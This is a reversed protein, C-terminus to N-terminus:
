FTLAGELELDMRQWARENERAREAATTCRKRPINSSTTTERVCQVAENAPRMILGNVANRSTEGQEFWADPVPEELQRQARIATEVSTVSARYNEVGYQAVGRLYLLRPTKLECSLEELQELADEPSDDRLYLTALRDYAQQRLGPHLAEIGLANNYARRARRQSGGMAEIDGEIMTLVGRENGALDGADLDKIVTEACETDQTSLCTTAERFITALTDDITFPASESSVAAVACSLDENGQALSLAPILWVLAGARCHPKKM